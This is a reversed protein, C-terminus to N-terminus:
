RLAKDLKDVQIEAKTMLDQATAQDGANLADNAGRLFADMLSATELWDRRMGLGSAAQSRQLGQLTSHIANARVSLQALSQRAKLLEARQPQAPAEPPPQQTQTRVAPPAQNVVPSPASPSVQPAPQSVAAASRAPKADPVRAPPKAAVQQKPADVVPVPQPQSPAPQVPTAAVPVPEPAPATVPPSAPPPSNVAAAKRSPGLEIVAVLAAVACLTGVAVWLGRRSKPVPAAAQPAPVPRAPSPAAGPAVSALANAFAEATQFRKEPERQVSLLIIENLAPPLSPDISIPPAPDKDLHASM